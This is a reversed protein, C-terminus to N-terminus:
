SPEDEASPEVHGSLLRPLELLDEKLVFAQAGADAAAQRYEAHGHATVMIVRASPDLRRIARTAAIGDVGDPGDMEVDMLVWDPRMARYAELAERGSGCEQVSRSVEEVLSRILARMSVNDEVILVDPRTDSPDQDSPIRRM